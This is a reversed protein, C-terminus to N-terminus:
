GLAKLMLKHAEDLAQRVKPMSARVEAALDTAGSIELM